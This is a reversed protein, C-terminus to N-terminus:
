WEAEYDIVTYPIKFGIYTTTELSKADRMSIYKWEIDDNFTDGEKGPYISENTVNYVGSDTRYHLRESPDAEDWRRQIEELTDLQLHPGLGAPGVIQGIYEAGGLENPDNAYNYGRRYVKGNDNDNKNFTDIIVYEDYNVTKYLGGQRFAVAMVNEQIWQARGGPYKETDQIEEEIYDEYQDLKSEDILRFSKAIIFSAGRRGGYFSNYEM